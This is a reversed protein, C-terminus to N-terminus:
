MGLVGCLIRAVDIGQHWNPHIDTDELGWCRSLVCDVLGAAALMKECERLEASLISLRERIMADRQTAPLRNHLFRGVELCPAGIVGKPDIATWGAAGDLLINEHHLDGHLLVDGPKNREIEELAREAKDILDRPMREEPDWETRTLRFARETWDSFAPLNHAPPPPVPLTRMVSAAIAAEERNDGLRWLMTGPQIREMLIAGLDRDADLLRVAGTSSYLRLAEMETFLEPHPVGIKLAAAQGAATTGFEIYNMRMDACPVPDGLEWKERCRALIGPLTPLWARGRDGFVRHVAKVFETPLDM